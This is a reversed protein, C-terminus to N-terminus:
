RVRLANGATGILATVDPPPLSPAAQRPLQRALPKGLRWPTADEMWKIAHPIIKGHHTCTRRADALAAEVLSKSYGALESAAVALWEAAADDTM